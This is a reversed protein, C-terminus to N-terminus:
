VDPFLEGALPAGVALDLPATCVHAAGNFTTTREMFIVVHAVRAETTLNPTAMHACRGHHFTCDGARLPLTVRPEWQLDPCLGFLSGADRLNQAPLDRRAHSGPLFTMCGREVPVDQLAIWASIPDPSNAHPWYPQDQHFETSVNGHPRKILLHDHWLRLPQGVLATAAAALRPLLTLERIVADHRWVNVHQDFVEGGSRVEERSEMVALAAARFRAAAALSLLGGVKVFGDARYRAVMEATVLEGAM